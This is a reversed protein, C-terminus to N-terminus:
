GKTAGPHETRPQPPGLTGTTQVHSHEEVGLLTSLVGYPEYLPVFRWKGEEGSVRQWSDCPLSRNAVHVPRYFVSLFFFFIQNFLILRFYTNLDVWAQHDFGGKM